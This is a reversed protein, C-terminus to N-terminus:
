RRTALVRQVAELVQEPPIDDTRRHRINDLDYRGRDPGPIRGPAELIAAVPNLPAWHRPSTPGFIGITPAGLAASIHMLGSDNTVAADAFTLAVVADRLDNGTLDHVHPGGAAAIEAALPTENPGGLVWVSAGETTLAKALAAYHATPWKKGKGVAGPSMTVVPRSDGALGRRARWAAAEKKPVVLEPLPWEAPLPAEAPLALAGCQDVMRPLAREGRRMDNILVFRGEGFFGVREPIGALFPALASKWTRSMVLATGYGEQRLRRALDLQLAIALRRRPLDAVMAKRVGSMYDTLPACLTTSLVDVPRGPWRERLVRVVSHCRVFDGIWMYPMLLIPSADPSLQKSDSNM